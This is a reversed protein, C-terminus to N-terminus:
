PRPEKKFRVEIEVSRGVHLAKARAHTTKFRITDSYERWEAANDARVNTVTFAVGEGTDELKDIVGNFKM